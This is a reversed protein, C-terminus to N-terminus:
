LKIQYNPDTAQNNTYKLMKMTIEKFSCDNNARGM